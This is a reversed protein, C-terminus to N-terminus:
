SYKLMAFKFSKPADDPYVSIAAAATATGVVNVSGAASPVAPCIKLVFPLPCSCNIVFSAAEKLKGVADVVINPPTRTSPVVTVM